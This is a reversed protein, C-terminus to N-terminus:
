SAKEKRLARMHDQLAGVERELTESCSHALRDISGAPRNSAVAHNNM